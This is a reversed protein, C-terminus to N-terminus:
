GGRPVLYAVLLILVVGALGLGLWLYGATTAWACAILALNGAGIAASVHAHNKGRQVAIQYIHEKHAEWIKEGRLLRRGLTFTADMLYYAPLILAPAWQGSAALRVLLFGMLFGLPISGVDGMFIRAPHWNWVLFGLAAGGAAVAIAVPTGPLAELAGIFAIGGALTVTEIGTIGDIGDMFNYLNIFWVLAVAVAPFIVWDPAYAPFSLQARLLYVAAAAALFHAGLRVRAPMGRLDDMWSVGSLLLLAALLLGTDPPPTGAHLLLGAVVPLLVGMVALGGGRPVPVAHSSRQNPKDLIARRELVGILVRTLGWVLLACGLGVLLAHSLPLASAPSVGIVTESPM